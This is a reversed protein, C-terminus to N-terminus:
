TRKTGQRIDVLTVGVGRVESPSDFRAIPDPARRGVCGARLQTSMFVGLRYLQDNLALLETELAQPIEIREQRVAARYEDELTSGVRQFTEYINHDLWARASEGFYTGILALNLNIRDNWEYLVDNYDALRQQVIDLSGEDRSLRRLAYFLRLMRYLRKDLLQSISESIADARRFEEETLRAENQHKWARQQLFTGLVGGLVTTLLFGVILPILEDVSPERIWYPEKRRRYAPLAVRDVTV